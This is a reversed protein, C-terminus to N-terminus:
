KQRYSSVEVLIIIKNSIECGSGSITKPFTTVRNATFFPLLFADSVKGM